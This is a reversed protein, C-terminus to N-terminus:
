GILRAKIVDALFTAAMTAVGAVMAVITKQTHASTELTQVRKSLSDCDEEAKDYHSILTDVKTELVGLKHYIAENSTTM